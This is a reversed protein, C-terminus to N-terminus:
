TTADLRETIGRTRTIAGFVRPDFRGSRYLHTRAAVQETALSRAATGWGSVENQTASRSHVRYRTVVDRTIAFHVGSFLSRLLFETDLSAGNAQRNGFDAYGGLRRFMDTQFVATPNELFYDVRKWHPYFSSRHRAPERMAPAANEVFTPVKVQQEGFQEVAGGFFEGGSYHLLSAAATFRHPLSIDDGDQVAVLDTEFYEAVNNFSAYQGINERNRYVRVQPHNRWRNLFDDVPERSADDILHVVVESDQQELVSQLAQEAYETLGFFPLVVDCVASQPAFQRAFQRLTGIETRGYAPRPGLHVSQRPSTHRVLPASECAIPRQECFARYVFEVELDPRAERSVGGMDVFTARRLVLTEWPLWERYHLESARSEPSLASVLGATTEISSGVLECGNQQMRDIADCLRHGVSITHPSQLAIVPTRLHEIWRQVADLPSRCDPDEYIRVNWTQEYAQLWELTFDSDSSRTLVIHLWPLCDQQELISEIAAQCHEADNQTTVDSLWLVVDCAPISAAPVRALSQDVIAQEALQQLVSLRTEGRRDALESELECAGYVLSPMVPNLRLLSDLLRESCVRCTEASVRYTEPTQSHLLERLLRCDAWEGDDELRVRQRFPCNVPTYESPATGFDPM